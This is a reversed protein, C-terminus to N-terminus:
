SEAGLNVVKDSKKVPVGRPGFAPQAMGPFAERLLRRRKRAAAGEAAEKRFSVRQTIEGVDERGRAAVIKL